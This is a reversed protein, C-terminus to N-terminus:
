SLSVAYLLRVGALIQLLFSIRLSLNRSIEGASYMSVINLSLFSSSSNITTIPVCFSLLPLMMSFPVTVLILNSSIKSIAQLDLAYM